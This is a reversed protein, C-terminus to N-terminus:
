REAARSGYRAADARRRSVPRSPPERSRLTRRARVRARLARARARRPAPPCRRSRGRRRPPPCRCSGARTRARAARGRRPNSTRSPREISRTPVSSGYWGNTSASRGSPRARPASPRAPECSCTNSSVSASSASRAAAAGTSSTSSSRCQASVEVSSRTTKRACLRSSGARGAARSRGRRRARTPRACAGARRRRGASPRPARQELEPREVALLQRRQERRAGVRGSGAASVSAITARESPLGNKASSSRAAARSRAALERAAQAVQQQLADGPEVPRRLVDQQAPRPRRVRRRSGAAARRPPAAPARRARTAAGRPRARRGRRRGPSPCSGSGGRAAPPPSRRSSGARRARPAARAARRPARACRRPAAPPARAASPPPPGCRPPARRTPRRRCALRLGHEAQRLREGVELPREREPGRHRVRGLEGPEVEGLEAGPCGLEGALDARRRARDLERRRAISSTPSSVVRM